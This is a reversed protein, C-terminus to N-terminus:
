IEEKEKSLRLLKKQLFELARRHLRSIWSKSLNLTGAIEDLTRDQFYYMMVLRKERVPLFDILARLRRKVTRFDIPGELGHGASPDAPEFDEMDDFSVVSCSSLEPLCYFHRPMWESKRLGDFIAGRIRHSAFTKFDYNYRTDFRQAAELLGLRADSLLDDYDVHGGLSRLAVRALTSAFPLYKEVLLIVTRSAQPSNM